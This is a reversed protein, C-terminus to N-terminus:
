KWVERCAEVFAARIWRKQENSLQGGGLAQTGSILLRRDITAPVSGKEAMELAEDVEDPNLTDAIEFAADDLLTKTEDDELESEPRGDSKALFTSVEEKNLERLTDAEQALLASQNERTPEIGLLHVRIGFEQAQQVGVRVDEDGSLILADSMARNRALAILDNVMLADVGQQSGHPTVFGLRLKINDRFALARQPPTPGSGTGDYWYIRLLSVGTVEECVKRLQEVIGEYNLSLRSRSLRENAILRSGAAYVYGADVFIAARDM